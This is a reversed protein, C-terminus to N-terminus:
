RDYPGSAPTRSFFLAAVSPYPEDRVDMIEYGRAEVEARRELLTAGAVEDVVYVLTGGDEVYRQGYSIPVDCTVKGLVSECVPGTKRAGSAVLVVTRARYVLEAGMSVAYRPGSEVSPFHGDAVANRRTDEDLEVLLVPYADFPIGSEHFAVHGRGGAGIVQLDIGGFAEIKRRYADLVDNKISTLVGGARESIVVAKGKDTGRMEFSDPHTRLEEILEDQDVLTAWPVNTERFPRELLSFFESVMFYSFSESNLVRQPANEGPLGIYEDLNFSRVRGPDIRGANFADALHRYLGTPSHGTALGLVYEEKAAQKRVVDAQVVDAAVKSMQDFDRTVYITFSM